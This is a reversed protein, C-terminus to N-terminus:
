NECRLWEILEKYIKNFKFSLKIESGSKRRGYLGALEKKNEPISILLRFDKTIWEIDIDGEMGPFLIPLPLQIGQSETTEFLNTLFILTMDITEEKYKENKIKNVDKKLKIYLDKFKSRKPIKSM